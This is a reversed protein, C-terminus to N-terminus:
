WADNRGGENENPMSETIAKSQKESEKQEEL